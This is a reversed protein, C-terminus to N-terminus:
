LLFSYTAGQLFYKLKVKVLILKACLHNTKQKSHTHAIGVMNNPNSMLKLLAPHNYGTPPCLPLPAQHLFIHKGQYALGVYHIYFVIILIM